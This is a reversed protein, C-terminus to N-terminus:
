NYYGRNTTDTDRSKDSTARLFIATIVGLAAELTLLTSWDTSYGERDWVFNWRTKTETRGTDYSGTIRRLAPRGVPNGSYPEGFTYGMISQSNTTPQYIFLALGVLIMGYFIRERLKQDM